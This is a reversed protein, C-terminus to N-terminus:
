SDGTAGSAVRFATFSALGFWLVDLARFSAFFAFIAILIPPVQRVGLMKNRFAKREQASMQKWRANTKERLEKPLEKFSDAEPFEVDAHKAGAKADKLADETVIEMALSMKVTDDDTDTKIAVTNVFKVTFLYAVAFKSALIMGISIAIAMLGAGLGARDAAAIRVGLGVFLGVAWAVYGVERHFFYGVAVWIAGAVLGGGFGFLPWTVWPLTNGDAARSRARKKPRPEDSTEGSPKSSKKGAGKSRAPMAPLRASPLPEGFDDGLSDLNELFNDEDAPPAEAVFPEACKPCRIKKGYLSPTKIKLKTECHPCEIRSAEPM